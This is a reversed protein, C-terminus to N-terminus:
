LVEDLGRKLYKKNKIEKIRGKTVMRQLSYEELNRNFDAVQKVFRESKIEELAGQGYLQAYLNDFFRPPKSKVGNRNVVFDNPYVDQDYKLLWDHGIGPRRSMVTYEPLRGAYHDEAAPGTIKKMVYRAVYAASEFTVEGIWNFGRFQWAKAIKESSYLPFQGSMGVQVLDDPRWGYLIIHFHPRFNTDGYEGCAYYRFKIKENKRLRKFFNTLDEKHLSLDRPLHEDDYTLTIFCSEDHMQKELECRIAWSRSKELRCAACQGCPLIIFRESSDFMYKRKAIPDGQVAGVFKYQDGVRVAYMPNSCPM